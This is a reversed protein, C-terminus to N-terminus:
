IPPRLEEKEENKANHFECFEPFQRLFKADIKNPNTALISLGRQTIQFYGRRVPELLLAKKLYTRAWGVRNEFIKQNGSPLLQKKEDDSLKFKTELNDITERLSHEIKDSLFHLLPLM